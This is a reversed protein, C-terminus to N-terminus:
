ANKKSFIANLGNYVQAFKKHQAADPIERVYRHAVIKKDADWVIRAKDVGNVFFTTPHKRWQSLVGGAVLNMIQAPVSENTIEVFAVKSEERAIAAETKKISQDLTRLADNQKEWKGITAQGNRKDNLPQGNAEKVFSMHGSLKEDFLTQKKALSARLVDLRKSTLTTAQQTENM